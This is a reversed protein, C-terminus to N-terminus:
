TLPTMDVGSGEARSGLTLVTCTSLSGALLHYPSIPAGDSTIEFGEGTVELRARTEDELVLRM